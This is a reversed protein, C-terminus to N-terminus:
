WTGYIYWVINKYFFICIDRQSWITSNTLKHGNPCSRFFPLMLFLVILPTKFHGDLTLLLFSIMGATKIWVSKNTLGILHCRLHCFVAKKANSIQNKKQPPPPPPSDEQFYITQWKSTFSVNSHKLTFKFYFTLFM